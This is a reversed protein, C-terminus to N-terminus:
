DHRQAFAQFHFQRHSLQHMQLSESFTAQWDARSLTQETQVGAPLAHPDFTEMRWYLLGGVGGNGFCCREGGPATGPRLAGGGEYRGTNTQLEGRYTTVMLERVLLPLRWAAPKGMALAPHMRDMVHM